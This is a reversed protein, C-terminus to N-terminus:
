KSKQRARYSRAKVQSGCTAMDCWVRSRNKSGDYFAWGCLKCAKYRALTGDIGARYVLGVIASLAGPVGEGSPAVVVSSGGFVVRLPTDRTVGNLTEFTREDLDGDANAAFLSRLAARVRRAARLDDDSVPSSGAVLGRSSFWAAAASAETLADEDQDRTQLFDILLAPNASDNM